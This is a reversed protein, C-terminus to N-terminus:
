KSPTLEIEMSTQPAKAVETQWVEKRDADLISLKFGDLREQGYSRNWIVVETLDRAKLLDVEWWPNRENKTHTTSGREFEGDTNGAIAKDAIPNTDHGHTSSQTAKGRRAINRGNSFVEVEALSLVGNRMLEIRVYRGAVPGKKSQNVGAKIRQDVAMRENKAEMALDLSGEKTLEVILADLQDCYAATIHAVKAGREKALKSAQGVYIKQLRALEAHKSPESLVDGRDRFAEQETRAALALDLNGQDQATMLLKELQNFYRANFEDFASSAETIKSDYQARLASLKTSKADEAGVPSMGLFAAFLLLRM